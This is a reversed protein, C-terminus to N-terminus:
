CESKSSKLNNQKPYKHLRYVHTPIIPTLWELLFNPIKGITKILKGYGSEIALTEKFAPICINEYALGSKRLLGELKSKSLPECDYFEVKRLLWLYNNRMMKPLWSLFLLKYHPERLMWRNPLALYGIGNPKLVREIESLHHSQATYDGVHEIVHNSIVVDFENDAFPLSTDKMLMFNFNDHLLRNDVVDVSSVICKIKEHTAFYHAIGGVGTGIDLLYICEDWSTLDLLREIKLAKKRRSPLDLVAHPKRDNMQPM